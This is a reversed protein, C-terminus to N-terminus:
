EPTFWLTMQYDITLEEGAQIDRRAVLDIALEDIHRVFDCNPAYSHNLLSTYGLAIASRGEHRYLDEEVTGHEWMFVYTFVITPDVAARDSAPIVLVPSREILAGAPIDAEAVVGRGRRGMQLIRLPLRHGSRIPLLEFPANM